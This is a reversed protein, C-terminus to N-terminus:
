HDVDSDDEYKGGEVEPETGPESPAEAAHCWRLGAVCRGDAASSM